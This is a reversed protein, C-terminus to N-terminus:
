PLVRVDVTEGADMQVVWEPVIVLANAQGLTAMQHSGQGSLPTVLGRNRDIVGRLCSGRGAPSRVPATIEARVSKLAMGDHAQLAGIAPRVFIEAHDWGCEALM